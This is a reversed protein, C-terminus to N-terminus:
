KLHLTFDYAQALLALPPRDLAILVFSLDLLHFGKFLVVIIQLKFFLVQNILIATKLLLDLNKLGLTLLSLNVKRDQSLVFILHGELNM